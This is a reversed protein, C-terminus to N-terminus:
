QLEYETESIEALSSIRHERLELHANALDTNKTALNAKTDSIETREMREMGETRETRDTQETQEMQETRVRSLTKRTATHKNKVKTLEQMCDVLFQDKATTLKDTM